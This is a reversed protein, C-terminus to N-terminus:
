DCEGGKYVIPKGPEGSSRIMLGHYDSPGFLFRDGGQPMVTNLKSITKWATEPTLGDNDDNGSVPDIFFDRGGRAM